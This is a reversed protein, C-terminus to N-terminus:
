RDGALPLPSILINRFEAKAAPDDKQFSLTGRWLRLAAPPPSHEAVRLGGAWVQVNNGSATLTYTVWTGGGVPLPVRYGSAPAGRDGRLRVSAPGGRVDFQVIFDDFAYGPAWPAMDLPKWVANRLEVGNKGPALVISGARFRFQGDTRVVKGDIRAVFSSGRALVDLRRWTDGSASGLDVAFGEHPISRVSLAGCRGSCRFELKLRVNQITAPSVTTESIAGDPFAEVWGAAALEPPVALLLLAPLM